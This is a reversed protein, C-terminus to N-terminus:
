AAIWANRQNTREIEKANEAEHYAISRRINKLERTRWEAGSIKPEEDPWLPRCDFDISEAIQSRMFDRLGIHEPTPPTWGNVCALMAEYKVRLEATKRINEQRRDEAAKWSASARRECAADDLAELEALEKRSETLAKVHYDSPEFAEPIKEGGGTEDRLIVCAGFARACNMAFTRFDIGDKIADTYGTPM